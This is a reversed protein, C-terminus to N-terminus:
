ATGVTPEGSTITIAAVLHPDQIIGLVGGPGLTLTALRLTPNIERTQRALDPGAIVRTAAVEVLVGAEIAGLSLQWRLSTRVLQQRPPQPFRQLEPM